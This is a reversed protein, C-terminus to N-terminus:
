RDSLRPRAFAFDGPQRATSILKEGPRRAPKAAVTLKSLSLGSAVIGDVSSRIRVVEGGRNQGWLTVAESGTM